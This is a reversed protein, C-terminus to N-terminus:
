LVKLRIKEVAEKGQDKNVFVFDFINVETKIKKHASRFSPNIEKQFKEVTERLEDLFPYKLSIIQSTKNVWCKTKDPRIMFDWREGKLKENMVKLSVMRSKRKKKGKSRKSTRSLASTEETSLRKKTGPKNKAKISTENFQINKSRSSIAKQDSTEKAHIFEEIPMLLHINEEFNYGLQDLLEL